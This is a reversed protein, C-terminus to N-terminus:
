NNRSVWPVLSQFWRKPGASIGTPLIGTHFLLLGIYDTDVLHPRPSLMRAGGHGSIDLYFLNGTYNRLLRFSFRIYNSVMHALRWRRCGHASRQDFTGLLWRSISRHDM